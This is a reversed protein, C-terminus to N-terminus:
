QQNIIGKWNTPVTTALVSGYHLFNHTPM